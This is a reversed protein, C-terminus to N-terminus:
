HGRDKREKLVILLERFDSLSVQKTKVWEYLLKEKDEKKRLLDRRENLTKM